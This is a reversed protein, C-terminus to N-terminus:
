RDFRLLGHKKNTSFTSRVGAGPSQKPRFCAERRGSTGLLTKLRNFGSKANTALVSVFSASAKPAGVARPASAGNKMLVAIGDEEVAVFFTLDIAAGV